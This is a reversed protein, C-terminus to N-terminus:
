WNKLPWEIPSAPPWSLAAADLMRAFNPTVELDFPAGCYCNRINLLLVMHGYPRADVEAAIRNAEERHGLLAEDMIVDLGIIGGRIPAWPLGTSNRCGFSKEPM